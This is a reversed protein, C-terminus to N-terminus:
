AASGWDCLRIQIQRSRSYADKRVSTKESLQSMGRSIAENNNKNDNKNNKSFAYNTQARQLQRPTQGHVAAHM